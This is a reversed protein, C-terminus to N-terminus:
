KLAVTTGTAPQALEAVVTMGPRVRQLGNVIVRDGPHLGDRIVRKGDIISGLTVPRYAVTNDAGVTLVFKQSQDTGIARDSILLAPQPASVPLHVRAFLGPVLKGDPNPFILRLVLSGTAPDIHNDASEVYGHHPFGSEDGLQMQVPIHGNETVLRGEHSLRNFTLVTAEDVDAYVYADGVSVISTLLTAGSPSGSVLNGTTVYARSVRGDIPARVETYDLNIRASELGAQAELLSARAEALRSTRTDAEEASIAREALLKDSRRAEREANGVQVKAREVQATALDFEARYPRPDIVFLVDGKKVLQGSQFRVEDIHGSVRPRLEVSEIADVHGLLERQDTVNREEVSAVTVTPGAPAVAKPDAANAEHVFLSAGGMGALVLALLALTFRHRSVPSIRHQVTSSTSSTTNM